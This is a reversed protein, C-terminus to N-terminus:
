DYLGSAKKEQLSNAAEGNLCCIHGGQVPTYCIIFGSLTFSDDRKMYSTLRAKQVCRGCKELCARRNILHASFYKGSSHWLDHRSPWTKQPILSCGTQKPPNLFGELNQPPHKLFQFPVGPTLPRNEWFNLNWGGQNFSREKWGTAWGQLLWYFYLGSMKEIFMELFTFFFFFFLKLHRGWNRSWFRRRKEYM